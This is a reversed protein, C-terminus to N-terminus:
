QNVAVATEDIAVIEDYTMNKSIIFDGIVLYDLGTSFFCRLADSPNDVIAEGKVNFSTNLVIPCGTQKFFSDILAHYRPNTSKSVTQPRATGDVHTVAQIVGKKEERVTPIMLMYPSSTELEFWNSCEEELVSPAFPRFEERFKIRANVIDKHEAPRPDALISRSGLARPGLESRGQFWGIIKGDALLKAVADATNSLKCATIGYDKLEKEIEENSFDSGWYAHDIKIRKRNGLISHYGYLAAGLSIGGDNSAPQIFINNLELQKHIQYNMVGNLSVGGSMCLNRTATMKLLNEVIEVGVENLRAQLSHAIDMHAQTIEEDPKRAPGFTEEVLPTWYVGKECDAYTQHQIYDTNVHFITNPDFRFIARMEDLYTPKGYSALGMVKYEDNNGFGLYRTIALYVLGLSQPWFSEQLKRINNGEGLGLLGTSWEGRGDLSLISAKDYPSAFFASAAHAMHHEIYHLRANPFLEKAVKGDNLTDFYLSRLFHIKKRLVKPHMSKYPLLALKKRFHGHPTWGIVVDDVQDNTINERELCFKISQYPFTFDHKRRTLREEEIAAVLRNGVILSAGSDHGSSCGLGVIVKENGFAL